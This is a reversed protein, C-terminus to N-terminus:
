NGEGRRTIHCSCDCLGGCGKHDGIQCLYSVGDHRLAVKGDSDKFYAM